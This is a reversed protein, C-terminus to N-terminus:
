YKRPCTYNPCKKEIFFSCRQLYRKFDFGSGEFSGLHATSVTSLRGKCIEKTLNQLFSDDLLLGFNDLVFSFGKRPDAECMVQNVQERNAKREAYDM